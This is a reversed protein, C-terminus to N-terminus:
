IVAEPHMNKIMEFDQIISNAFELNSQCQKLVFKWAEAESTFLGGTKEYYDNLKWSGVKDKDNLEDFYIFKKTIKFVKKPLIRLNKSYCTFWVDLRQTRATTVSVQM